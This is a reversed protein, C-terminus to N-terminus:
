CIEGKTIFGHWGGWKSGDISPTLTLNEFSDGECRWHLNVGLHLEHFQEWDPHDVDHQVAKVADLDVKPNGCIPVDFFVAMRRSQDTPDNFRVGLKADPPAGLCTLWHPDLDTLRM